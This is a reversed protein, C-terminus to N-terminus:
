NSNENRSLVFKKACLHNRVLREMAVVIQCNEILIMEWFEDEKDVKPGAAAIFTGPFYGAQLVFMNTFLIHPGIM